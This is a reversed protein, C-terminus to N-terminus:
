TIRSPMTAIGRPTMTGSPVTIQPAIPKAGLIRRRPRLIGGAQDLWDPDWRYCGVYFREGPKLGDGKEVKEVAISDAAEGLHEDVHYYDVTFNALDGWAAFQENFANFIPDARSKSVSM